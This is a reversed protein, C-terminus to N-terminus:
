ALEALKDRRIAQRGALTHHRPEQRRSLRALSRAISAAASMQRLSLAKLGVDPRTADTSFLPICRM